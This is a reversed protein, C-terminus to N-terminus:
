ELYASMLYLGEPGNNLQVVVTTGDRATFGGPARTMVRGLAEGAPMRVTCAKRSAAVSCARVADENTQLATTIAREATGRDTFRSAEPPVYGRRGEAILTGHTLRDMLYADDVDVHRSLTHGYAAHEHRGLDVGALLEDVTQLSPKPARPDLINRAFRLAGADPGARMWHPGPVFMATGVAIAEGYRGHLWGDVDVATGVAQVPHRVSRGISEWTDGPLSSVTHWWAERDVLAEGTVSWAFTAPEVIVADRVERYFGRVQDAADWPRGDIRDRLATLKVSVHEVADWYDQRARGWRNWADELAQTIEPAWYRGRAHAAEERVRAALVDTRGIRMRALASEAATLWEKVLAAAEVAVEASEVLRRSLDARLGRYSDAAEGRWVAAASASGTLTDAAWRLERGAAGLDMVATWAQTPRVEPIVLENGSFPQRSTM